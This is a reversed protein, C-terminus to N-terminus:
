EVGAHGMKSTVALRYPRGTGGAAALQREMEALVERMEALSQYQVTKGNASVSLVGSAIAAQLTDREAATYAM